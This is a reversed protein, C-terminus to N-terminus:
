DLINGPGQGDTVLYDMCDLRYYVKPGRELRFPVELPLPSSLYVKRAGYVVFHPVRIDAMMELYPLMDAGDEFSWFQVILSQLGSMGALVSCARHWQSIDDQYLASTLNRPGSSSHISMDVRLSRITLLRSPAVINQLNIILLHGLYGVFLTNTEYLIPMSEMYVRRCCALLGFVSWALSDRHRQEFAKRQGIPLTPHTRHLMAKDVRRSCLEGDAVRHELILPVRFTLIERYVMIRLEPPLKFLLSQSQDHTTYAHREQTASDGTPRPADEEEEDGDDRGPNTDDLPHPTIPRRLPKQYVKPKWGTCKRWVRRAGRASLAIPGCFLLAFPTVVVILAAHRKTLVLGM